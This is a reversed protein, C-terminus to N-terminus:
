RRPQSPSRERHGRGDDGVPAPVVEGAVRGSQPRGDLVDIAEFGPPRPQLLETQVAVPQHGAGHQVAHHGRGQRVPHPDPDLEDPALTWRGDLRHHAAVELPDGREPHLRRAPLATSAAQVTSIICAGIRSALRNAWGSRRHPWSRTTSM